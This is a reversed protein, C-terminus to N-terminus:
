QGTEGGDRGGRGCAPCRGPGHWPPSGPRENRRWAALVTAGLWLSAAVAVHLVRAWETLTTWINAAGIFVAGFVLGWGRGGAAPPAAGDAPRALGRGDDGARRAGRRGRPLPAGHAAGASRGCAPSQRQVAALRRLRLRGGFGLGLVGGADVGAREGADLHGAAGHRRRARRRGPPRSRGAAALADRLQCAIGRHPAAGVRAGHRLAGDRDGGSSEGHRHARGPDGAGWCWWRRPSRCSWGPGDRHARWAGIVFAVIALGVISAMLRHTWEIWVHYDGGAVLKGNCLPWDPCALGSDTVRVTAGLTILAVTGALTAMGWLQFVSPRRRGVAGSVATSGTVGARREAIM